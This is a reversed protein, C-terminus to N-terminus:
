CRDANVKEKASSGTGEMPQEVGALGNSAGAGPVQDLWEGQRAEWFASGDLDHELSAKPVVLISLLFVLWVPNLTRFGSESINYSLGAVFFGMWLRGIDSEPDFRTVVNRYGALIIVVFLFMGVWGLNLVVELYGNHAESPRFWYIAWLEELRSGLWFSDFGTGLIPDHV